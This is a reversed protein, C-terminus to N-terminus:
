PVIKVWEATMKSRYSSNRFAASANKRLHSARGEDGGLSTKTPELAMQRM